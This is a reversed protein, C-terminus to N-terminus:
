PRRSCARAHTCGRAPIKANLSICYSALTGPFCSLLNSQSLLGRYFLDDSGPFALFCSTRWASRAWFLDDSGPFALFCSQQRRSLLIGSDVERTTNFFVPTQGSAQTLKLTLETSFAAHSAPRCTRFEADLAAMRLSATRPHSASGTSDRSSPGSDGWAHTSAPSM